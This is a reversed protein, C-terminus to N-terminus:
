AWLLYACWFIFPVKIIMAAVDLGISYEFKRPYASFATTFVRLFFGVTLVWFSILVFTEM